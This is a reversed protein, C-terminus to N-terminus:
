DYHPHFKAFSESLHTRSVHTYLETSKISAHGLLEQIIRLDAGHNLLHTAFSHRLTHPSIKKAIQAQRAYEKIMKWVAIRDILNGKKTLFLWHVNPDRNAPYNLYHDIAQVAKRGIPTLREKSGKGKIRVFDDGVDHLSLACLESVRLGCSYLLELIALDRAGTWTDSQPQALLAEVENLTLYEPLLQWLKPTELYLAPNLEILQERKLFKFLVKIAILTRCLTASAYGATKKKTLFALIDDTCAQSFDAVHRDKLFDIFFLIDREYAEITNLALGKESAIYILFDKTHEEFM